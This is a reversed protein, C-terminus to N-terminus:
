AALQDFLRIQGLPKTGKISNCKMCECQVNDWVTNGGDAMAKIHGISWGKPQWGKGLHPEVKVGCVQCTMGDRQAVTKATIGPTYVTGHKKHRKRINGNERLGLKRQRKREIAAQEKKRKVKCEDSCLGIILGYHAEELTRMSWLKDAKYITNCCSCHKIPSYEGGVIPKVIPKKKNLEFLARKKDKEIINNICNARAHHSTLIELEVARSLSVFPSLFKRYNGSNIIEHHKQATTINEYKVGFVIVQERKKM